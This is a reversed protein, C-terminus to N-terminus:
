HKRTALLGKVAALEANRRNGPRATKAANILKDVEKTADQKVRAGAKLVKPAKRVKKIAKAASAKEARLAVLERAMKLMVPDSIGTIFQDSYGEALLATRIGAQETAKVTQDTWEPIIEYLKKEAWQLAQMKHSQMAQEAARADGQAREFADRYKGKLLAAKGPDDAELEDWNV